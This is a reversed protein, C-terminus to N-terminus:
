GARAHAGDDALASYEAGSLGIDMDCVDGVVTRVRARQAMPMTELFQEAAGAFKDRALLIVKARADHAVIKQILRAATFSPFGTVLVVEDPTADEDERDRERMM